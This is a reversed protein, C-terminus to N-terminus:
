TRWVDPRNGTTWPAEVPAETPMGTNFVDEDDEWNKEVAPTIPVDNLIDDFLDDFM